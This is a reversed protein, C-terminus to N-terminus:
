AVEVVSLNMLAALQKLERSYDGYVVALHQGFAAHEHYLDMLRPVKLDLGLSCGSRDTGFGRVVEGRAVLLKTAAPDFRGLTVPQGQDRSFDYRVTAGWGGATFNRIEFPLDPQELGNMKLGPVDHFVRLLNEAKRYVPNGMYVSKRATYMEATMALLANMDGECASPIGQDKLFTHTLCPTFQRQNPIQSGCLEICDITFAKCGYKRMLGTATAYFLVDKALFAADMHVKAARGMLDATIRKVREQTERDAAAEDMASFFEPYSVVQHDIGLRERVTALPIVSLGCMPPLGVRDVVSLIKTERFAKRVQLLAILSNLEELDYVAFGDLGKARHGAAIDLCQPGPGIAALPKRFREIGPLRAPWDSVVYLDVQPADPALKRWQDPAITFTEDYYIATPDLAVAHKTLVKGLSANFSACRKDAAARESEPSSGRDRCPGEYSCSHVLNACVPKVRIRTEIPKPGLDVEHARPGREAAQPAAADATAAALACFGRRTVSLQM